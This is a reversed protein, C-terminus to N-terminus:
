LDKSGPDSNINLLRFDFLFCFCSGIKRDEANLRITVNGLFMGWPCRNYLACNACYKKKYLYIHINTGDRRLHHKQKVTTFNESM